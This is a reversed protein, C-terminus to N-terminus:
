GFEGGKIFFLPESGHEYSGAVLREGSDAMIIPMVMKVGISVVTSHGYYQRFLVWQELL